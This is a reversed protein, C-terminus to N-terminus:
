ISSAKQPRKKNELIRGLDGIVFSDTIITERCRERLEKESICPLM